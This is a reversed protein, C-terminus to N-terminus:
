GQRYQEERKIEETIDIKTAVYHLVKGAADHLPSINAEETYFTGDKRKNILRGKWNGGSSLTQWMHQYFSNDHEGSKLIRPNQGIVEERRYGSILEFAPNVYSIDGKQDAIMITESM